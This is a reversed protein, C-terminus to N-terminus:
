YIRAFHYECRGLSRGSHSQLVLDEIHDFELFPNVGLDNTADTGKGTAFWVYDPGQNKHWVGFLIEDRPGYILRYKWKFKKLNKKNTVWHGSFGNALSIPIEALAYITTEYDVYGIAQRHYQKLSSDVDQKVLKREYGVVTRNFVQATQESDFMFYKQKEGILYRLAVDVAVPDPMKARGLNWQRTSEGLAAFKEVYFYMAAALAKLDLPEFVIKLGDPNEVEIPHKPEPICAGSARAGNCFGEWFAPLPRRLTGRKELEIKTGPLDYRGYLLDLKEIASLKNIEDSSMQVFRDRQEELSPEERNPFAWARFSRRSFPLVVTLADLPDRLTRTQWRRAIGNNAMPFYPGAWPANEPTPFFSDKGDRWKSYDDLEEVNLGYNRLANRLWGMDTERSNYLDLGEVSAIDPDPLISALNSRAAPRGEEAGAEAPLNVRIQVDGGNDDQAWCIPTFLLILAILYNM